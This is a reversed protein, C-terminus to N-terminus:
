AAPATARRTRSLAQLCFDMRPLEDIRSRRSRRGCRARWPFRRARPTAARHRITSRTSQPDMEGPPARAAVTRRALAYRRLDYRDARDARGAARTGGRAALTAVVNTADDRAALRETRHLHLQRRRTRPRVAAASAAERARLLRDGRRAGSLWR